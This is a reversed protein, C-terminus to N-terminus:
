CKELDLLIPTKSTLVFGKPDIELTAPVGDSLSLKYNRVVTILGVKVQMLGFRMGSINKFVSNTVYKLM